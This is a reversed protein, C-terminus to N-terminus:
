NLFLKILITRRISTNM